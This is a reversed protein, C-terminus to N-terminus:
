CGDSEKKAQQRDRAKKRFMELDRRIYQEYCDPCISHTFSIDAHRRMYTEVEHWYNHDDRIRKCYSCIPLLGQLTKVDELAKELERVKRNLDGNLQELRVSQAQVQQHAQMLQKNINTLSSNAKNLERTREEVRNELESNMAMLEAMLKKNEQVLEYREVANKLTVTLDDVDWPKVIYKYIQGRNISDLLDRTESYATIVIRVSDPHSERLAALLDVGSMGPMRQDSIVVAMEGADALVQMGEEGSTATLIEYEGDFARQFNTLNIPEDDVYLIKAKSEM